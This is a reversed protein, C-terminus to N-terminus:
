LGGQQIDFESINSIQWMQNYFNKSYLKNRFKLADKLFRFIRTYRRSYHSTKWSVLWM